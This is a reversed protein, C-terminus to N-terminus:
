TKRKLVTLGCVNKDEYWVDWEDTEALFTQIAAEVQKLVTDHLAIFTKTKPSYRQLELVTEEYRHSSDIFLIDCDMPEVDCSNRIIYEYEINLKKAREIVAGVNENERFDIGVVKKTACEIWVLASAGDAVGLEVITEYGSFHKKYWKKRRYNDGNAVNSIIYRM